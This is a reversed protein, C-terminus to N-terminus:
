LFSLFVCLYSPCTFNVESSDSDSDSDSDSSSDSSDSDDSSVLAAKQKKTLAVEPDKFNEPNGRCAAIETEYKKNHKRIVLKMRNLARAVVPKMKSVADKDKVTATVVDEVEVLLKIYFPPLGHQMVLMRAKDIQKNVEDFEDQITGWDNIKVASRIRSVKEFITDWTRDKESRVVRGEDESESESDFAVIFKGKTIPQSVAVEEVDSEEKESDSSSGYAFFKSM